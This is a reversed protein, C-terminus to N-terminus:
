KLQVFWKVCVCVFVCIYRHVCVYVYMRVCNVISVNVNASDTFQLGFYDTEILDLHYFIKEYLASGLAKKQLFVFAVDNNYNPRLFSTNESSM